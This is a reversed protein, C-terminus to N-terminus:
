RKNPDLSRFGLQSSPTLKCRILRTEKGSYSLGNRVYHRLCLSLTISDLKVIIQTIQYNWLMRLNKKWLIPLFHAIVIVSSTKQSFSCLQFVAEKYQLNTFTKVSQIRHLLQHKNQKLDGVSSRNPTAKYVAHTSNGRGFLISRKYM